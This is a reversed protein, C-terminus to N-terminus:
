SNSGILSSTSVRAGNHVRSRDGPLPPRREKSPEPGTHHDAHVGFQDLQQTARRTAERDLPALAKMAGTAPGRVRGAPVDGPERPLPVDGAEPPLPVAIVHGPVLLVLRCEPDLRSDVSAVQCPLQHEVGTAAAPTIGQERGPVPRPDDPDVEARRDLFGFREALPKRAHRDDLPIQGPERQGFRHEVERERDAHQVVTGVRSPGKALDSPPDLGATTQRDPKIALIRWRLFPDVRAEPADRGAQGGPDELREAHGQARDSADRHEPPREVLQGVERVM